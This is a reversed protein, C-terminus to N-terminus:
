KKVVPIWIEDKIKGNGLNYYMEFEPGDAHDYGSTPFWEPFIRKWLAQICQSREEEKAKDASFIAWTLAPVELVDYEDPIDSNETIAGIMYSLMGDRFNYLGAHVCENEKLNFQQAIRQIKGNSFNEEWFKPLEVFNQGDVTSFDKSVGVMKFAPKEEIRYNMEKDGKISIYFNIRPYAKIVTGNAKTQTPTVGHLSKFARTFSESSNYGYKIAIDIIKEDSFQLDFAAKTLRRRRIYESLSIDTIFAFLRQFYFVSCNAKKAVDALSLDQDINDEIFDIASNMRDLWDM